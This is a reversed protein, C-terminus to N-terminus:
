KRVGQEYTHNLCFASGRLVVSECGRWICKETGLGGRRELLLQEELERSDFNAWDEVGEVSVLFRQQFKDQADLRWLSGDSKRRYLERWGSRDVLELDAMVERAHATGSNFYSAAPWSRRM